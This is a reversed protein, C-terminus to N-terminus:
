HNSAGTTATAIVNDSFRCGKLLRFSVRQWTVAPLKPLGGFNTFHFRVSSFGAENLIRELDKRLLATIHAPYCSDQFAVFHGRLMLAMLSRISENNPTSLILRGGPKLIRFWERAVQRPNELHELVEAAIVADFSRAPLVGAENSDFRHWAIESPLNEPRPLIDAGEVREFRGLALLRRALNGVGAGYDLARGRLDYGQVLRLIQDYIVESSVGGSAEAARLRQEELTM